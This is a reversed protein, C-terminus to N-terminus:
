RLNVSKTVDNAYKSNKSLINDRSGHTVDWFKGCDRMHFNLYVNKKKFRLM